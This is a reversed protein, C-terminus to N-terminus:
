IFSAAMSFSMTLLFTNTLTDAGSIWNFFSIRDALLMTGENEIVAIHSSKGSIVITKGFVYLDLGKDLRSGNYTHQVTSNLLFM